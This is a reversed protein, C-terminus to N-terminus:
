SGNISSVPTDRAVTVSASGPTFTDCSVSGSIFSIAKVTRKNATHPTTETVPAVFKAAKAASFSTVGTGAFTRAAFTGGSSRALRVEISRPAFRGRAVRDCRAAPGTAKNTLLFLAATRRM